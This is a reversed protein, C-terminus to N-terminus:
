LGAGPALKFKWTTPKTVPKTQITIDKPHVGSDPADAYTLVAFAGAPLLPLPVPIERPTRSTRAGINWVVGHRRAMVIHEGPVGALVRSEDWVERVDEIFQFSTQDRQATRCDAVM